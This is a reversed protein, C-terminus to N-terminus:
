NSYACTCVKIQSVVVNVNNDNTQGSPRTEWTGVIANWAKGVDYLWPRITEMM